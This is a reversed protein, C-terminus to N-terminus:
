ALLGLQKLKRHLSEFRLGIDRATRSINGKHEELAIHLYRREFDQVAEKMTLPSEPLQRAIDQSLASTHRYLQQLKSPNIIEKYAELTHEIIDKVAEQKVYTLAPARERVTAVDIKFRVILRHLSRRDLDAIRAVESINGRHRHLLQILYQKKFQRKAQKFPISTDISLLSSRKLKDSIDARIESVTIGLYRKMADDLMPKVKKEVVVDLSEVM